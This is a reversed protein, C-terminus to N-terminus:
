DAIVRVGHAVMVVYQDDSSTGSARSSSIPKGCFAEIDDHNVLFDKRALLGASIAERRASHLLDIVHSKAVLQRLEMTIVSQAGRTM